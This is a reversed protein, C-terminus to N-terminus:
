RQKEGATIVMKVAVWIGKPPLDYPAELRITHRNSNYDITVMAESGM